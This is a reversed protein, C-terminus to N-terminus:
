AAAGGPVWPSLLSEALPMLTPGETWLLACRVPRGPWIRALLAQYAAMQRLYGVPVREPAAPPQRNTKYDVLLVADPLVVLRDVRGIVPQGAIAGALPLEARSGPAFLPAFAPDDLVAEVQQAIEAQQDPDLRLAPQALYRALAAAREVAPLGPLLQLLRHILRGRRLRPGAAAGLPSGVPPLEGAEDASPTLIPLAPAVPAAADLWAPPAPRPPEARAPTPMTPAPPQPEDGFRLIEGALGEVPPPLRRLGPLRALGAAILEHWCDEGQRRRQCGTVILREQARTMAVYLLRRAEQRGREEAAACAAASVPDRREKAVRWLPLGDELWVLPDREAKQFASDALIVIPAELGKAGHVTLVRVEDRPQDPDRVLDTTDARLWHLFGQMSPPHSREYALAQALFAEIPEAAGPGLRALFRARGGGEGLLRAYFEFPPVFDVQALLAGFRAHADAIAPRVPALAALRQHLSQGAREWALEFLDDEDLGFLPSKLVIALTLDDEPLLLAEGLAMLDMVALEETLRLRDAGAVPIGAQKLARVLLEQLVGRRQLLIMVDGPRIPRGTCALPEGSACWGAIRATIAAALRREPQDVPVPADPLRWPEPPTPPAPEVLPWLEVLGPAARRFAQHELPADGSAVGVRVAPDAFVADVVALVPPASRFSRNLPAEQWSCGGARAQEGFTRRLRQSTALDAGQFAFISQKEDGVVFLTRPLSRAGAGAFFEETLHRVIAWQGPSTDQAEDILVHDIQQDLKYGIWPAAGPQSLLAETRAILDDYDLLGRKQKRREYAEIVATGLRLLAVSQRVIRAANLRTALAGLRAQEALLAAEAGNFRALTGKNAITKRPAHEKTFYVGLYADFSRIRRDLDGDLWARLARAAAQERVTGQALAICAYDLGAQDFAPDACAAAILDEPATEPAVGLRACLAAALGDPGGHRDLAAQLKLREQGCLAGLADTLTSEALALALVEVAQRLEPRQGARELVEHRAEQQLELAARPELVQFQPTVGAELPFRRLLTQCFSHLTMIRLGAPLDLVRALLSRAQATEAAQPPRGLLLELEAALDSAPMTAFRALDAQVRGAMEAAGAKTYTLCLIQDPLTGALMLRLMRNVLVRTKGTGASANVWVSRAPDAALHQEPTPRPRAAPASLEGM